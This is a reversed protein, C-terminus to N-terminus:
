AVAFCLPLDSHTETTFLFRELRGRWDWSERSSSARPIEVRGLGESEDIEARCFVGGVIVDDRTQRGIRSGFAIPCDRVGAPNARKIVACPIDAQIEYDHGFRGCVKRANECKDCKAIM